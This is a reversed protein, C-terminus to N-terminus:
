NFYKNIVKMMQQHIKGNSAVIQRGYLYDNGGKFDTVLGGAEEVIIAGGAVDWPNLSYEYFGDFRGCAVYALDLAASGLRRIGRSQHVLDKFLGLYADFEHALVYPFGTALMSEKVDFSESIFIKKGNLYAGGGKYAYFCEESNVELVVGLILNDNITLGISVSYLPIGHIFNTTGDLPDIIWKLESSSEKLTGEEALIDSKPLIKMLGHTIMEEAKKDVYTVYNHTGKIEVDEATHKDSENKIWKGVRRTLENVEHIINEPNM